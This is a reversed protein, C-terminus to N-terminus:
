DILSLILVVYSLSMSVIEITVRKPIAVPIRVGEIDVKVNEYDTAPGEEMSSGM